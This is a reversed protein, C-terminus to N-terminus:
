LRELNVCVSVCVCLCVSVCVCVLVGDKLLFSQAKTLRPKKTNISEEIDKDSTNEEDLSSTDDESSEEDGLSLDPVSYVATSSLLSTQTSPDAGCESVPYYLDPHTDTTPMDDDLTDRTRYSYLHTNKIQTNTNM